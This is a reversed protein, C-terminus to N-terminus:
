NVVNQPEGAGFARINQVLIEMLRTRAETSAWAIHPTLLCNPATLLPNTGLIPERSVVDAGYGALRGSALADAVDQEVILGGRSTNILLAGPKMGAIAAANIMGATEPFQPCHLCVVDSQALLEDMGVYRCGDDELEPRRHRASVLLKMGLARAIKGVAQGIQGYGIIGMTKDSLEMVPSLWFCFDPNNQWRDAHCAASHDGVRNTLELLLAITHQAVSDTSYAPINCVTIGLERAAATDIINYGTAMVAILKLNKCAAMLGRDFAVKNTVVVDAAEVRSLVEEPATRDYVTVQGLAKLGDWSLDGPNAAYGDVIVINM